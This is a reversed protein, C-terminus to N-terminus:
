SSKRPWYRWVLGGLILAGGLFTAPQLVEKAPAVMYAWIPNLLPELLTLTGAEQPSVVRLGRAVLWYASAMQCIGFCALVVLQAVSPMVYSGIWPLLLLASCAHNQATLWHSSEGRLIRLCILVAAYTLGSALAFLIAGMNEAQWGGFVIVGIGILGVALSITGRRDAPERLLWVSAMYMWMPATYQLLIANASKGLAMASVFTLNMLAFCVVMVLMPWRFTLDRRRVTLSLVLSAFLVRYFAIPLRDLAPENLHLSTPVTLLNVFVGSTSWLVAAAVICLRGEALSPAKAAFVNTAIASHRV